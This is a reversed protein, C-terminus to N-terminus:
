AAKKIEWEGSRRQEFELRRIDRLQNKLILDHLDYNRDPVKSAVLFRVLRDYSETVPQGGGEIRYITEKEYQILSGFVPGTYGLYKRLFRIENGTLLGKKTILANSIVKHLQEMDGYGYFEEGCVDCKYYEVGVLTVHDLGGVTYKKTVRQRKLPRKNECICHKM